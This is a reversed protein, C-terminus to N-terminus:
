SGPSSDLRCQGRPYRRGSARRPDPARLRALGAGRGLDSRRGPAGVFSGRRPRPPDLHLARPRHGGRMPDSWPTPLGSDITCGSSPSSGRPGRASTASGRSSSARRTPVCGSRELPKVISASSSRARTAAERGPSGGCGSHTKGTVVAAADGHLAERVRGIMWAMVQANTGADPAPIDGTPGLVGAIKDVFSRTILQLEDQELDSAPCNM